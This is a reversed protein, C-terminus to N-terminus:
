HPPDAFTRIKWATWSVWLPGERTNTAWRCLVGIPGWPGKIVVQAQHAFIVRGNEM